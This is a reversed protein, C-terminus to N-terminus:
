ANDDWTSKQLEFLVPFVVVVVVDRLRRRAVVEQGDDEGFPTSLAAEEVSKGGRGFRASSASVARIFIVFSSIESQSGFILAMTPHNPCNFSM